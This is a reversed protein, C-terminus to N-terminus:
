CRSGDNDICAQCDPMIHFKYLIDPKLLLRHAECMALEIVPKRDLVKQLTNVVAWAQGETLGQGNFGVSLAKLIFVRTAKILETSSDETGIAVPVEQTTTM